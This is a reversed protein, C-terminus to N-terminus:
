FLYQFYGSFEARFTPIFFWDIPGRFSCASTRVKRRQILLSFWDKGGFIYSVSYPVYGLDTGYVWYEAAIPVEIFVSGLKNKFSFLLIQM